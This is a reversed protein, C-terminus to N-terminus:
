VILLFHSSHIVVVFGLKKEFMLKKMVLCVMSLRFCFYIVHLALCVVQLLSGEGGM